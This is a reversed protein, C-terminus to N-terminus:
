CPTPTTTSCSPRSTSARAPWPGGRSCRTSPAATPSSPSSADTPAPWRPGWRSPCAKASPAAPSACGTTRHPAPPPRRRRLPGLHQRRGVRDGGRPAPRRPRRRGDPRHPARDPARTPQRTPARSRRAARRAGDVLAALTAVPDDLPGALEHTSCSEPVLDSAKDPYAFFSVPSRADILVLHTLGDLQAMAFEALYGLREVPVVGAGRELRAPFTECLLRAGTAASIAGASSLAEGRVARGGVFLATPEGSRLLAAVAEVRDVDVSRSSEPVRPALVTAVTTESWSVDAPLILTAVQGPPGVAAAMTTSRTPSSTTLRAAVPPRLEVRQPRRDRHRVRAPRRVGQPLHRPRRRHQGGAHPGAPRQAPQRCRQRSRPGLHLLTAAPRGAMRATATPRAPPSAKSCRWSAACRPCTTSARGRLADRLHGPEHLVRRRGGDVLTRLLSQAGNM